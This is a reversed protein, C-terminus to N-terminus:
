AAVAPESRLVLVEERRLEVLAITRGTADLFEVELADPSHVEVVTGVQGSVLGAEPKDELVAVLDLLKIPTKQV